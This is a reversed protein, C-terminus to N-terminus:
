EEEQGTLYALWCDFCSEAHPCPVISWDRDHCPPCIGEGECIGLAYVLRDFLVEHVKRPVSNGSHSLRKKLQEKAWKKWWDNVELGAYTGLAEYPKDIDIDGELSIDDQFIICYKMSKPGPDEQEVSYGYNMEVCDGMRPGFHCVAVLLQWDELADIDELKLENPYFQSDM